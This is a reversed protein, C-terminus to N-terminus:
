NRQEYWATVEEILEEKTAIRRKLGHQTLVSLECEAINLWSGHKPTRVVEIKSAIAHAREPEYIDYLAAMKHASLNDEVITIKQAQPYLDEVIHTIVEAYTM